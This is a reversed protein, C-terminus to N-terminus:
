NIRVTIIYPRDGRSKMMLTVNYQKDKAALKGTIYMTGNRENQSTIDFGKVGVGDFFSNMTLSAQNKGINKLEDKEPLKLDLLTDFYKSLQEANGQKLASVIGDTDTGMSFSMLMAGMGLLVLFKKM